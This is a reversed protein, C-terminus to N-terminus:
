FKPESLNRQIQEIAINIGTLIDQRFLCGTISEKLKVIDNISNERQEKCKLKAYQILYNELDNSNIVYGDKTIKHTALLHSGIFQKATM